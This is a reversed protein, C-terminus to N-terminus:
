CNNWHAFLMSIQGTVRMMNLLNHAWMSHELQHVWVLVFPCLWVYVDAICYFILSVSSCLHQEINKHSYTTVYVWNLSPPRVLSFLMLLLMLLLFLLVGYSHFMTGKSM